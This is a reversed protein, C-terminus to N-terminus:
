RWRAQSQDSRNRHSNLGIVTVTSWAMTWYVDLVRGVFPSVSKKEVIAPRCRVRKAIGDLVRQLLFVVCVELRTERRTAGPATASTATTATTGTAAPRPLACRPRGLFSGRIIRGKLTILGLARTLRTEGTEVFPSFGLVIGYNQAGIIFFFFFFFLLQARQFVRHGRRPQRQRSALFLNFVRQRLAVRFQPAFPDLAALVLFRFHLLVFPPQTPLLLL